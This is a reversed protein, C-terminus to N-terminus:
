ENGNNNFKLINFSIGQNIVSDVVWTKWEGKRINRVMLLQFILALFHFSAAFLIDLFYLTNSLSSVPPLYNFSRLRVPIVRSSPPPDDDVTEIWGIAKERPQNYLPPPTLAVSFHLSKRERALIRKERPSFCIVSGWQRGCFHYAARHTSRTVFHPSCAPLCPIGKTGTIHDARNLFAQRLTSSIWLPFVSWMEAALKWLNSGKISPADIDRDLREM